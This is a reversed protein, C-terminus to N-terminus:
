NYGGQSTFQFPLVLLGGPSISASSQSLSLKPASSGSTPTPLKGSILSSGTIQLVSQLKNVDAPDVSSNDEDDGKKCAFMVATVALACALGLLIRKFLVTNSSHM